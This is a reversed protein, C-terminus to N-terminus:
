HGPSNSDKDNQQVTPKNGGFEVPKEMGVMEEGSIQIDAKVEAKKGLNVGGGAKMNTSFSVKAM